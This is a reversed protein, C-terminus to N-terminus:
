ATFASFPRYDISNRNGKALNHHKCLIQFNHMAHAGGKSLPVIHDPSPDINSCEPIMCEPGYVEILVNLLDPPLAEITAGLKIARRRDNIERVRARNNRKWESNKLLM